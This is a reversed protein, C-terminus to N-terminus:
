ERVFAHTVAPQLQVAVRLQLTFVEVVFGLEHDPLEHGEGGEHAHGGVVGDCVVEAVEEEKDEDVNSAGADSRKALQGFFRLDEDGGRGNKADLRHSFNSGRFRKDSTLLHLRSSPQGDSQLM